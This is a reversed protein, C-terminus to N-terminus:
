LKSSMLILIYIETGAINEIYLKPNIQYIDNKEKECFEIDYYKEYQIWNGTFTIKESRSKIHYLIRKIDPIDYFFRLYPM